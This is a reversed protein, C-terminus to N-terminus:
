LINKIKIREAMGRGIAIRSEDVKVLLPGRGQKQLLTVIKGVRLGLDNIRTNGCQCRGHHGNKEQHESKESIEAIEGAEGEQMEFLPVM